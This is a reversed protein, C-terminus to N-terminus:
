HIDNLNNLIYNSQNPFISFFSGGKFLFKKNNNIINSHSSPNVGLICIQKHEIHNLSSSSIIKISDFPSYKNIKNPNDDIICKVYSQIKLIYIFAFTTHGAGYFIIKKNYKTLFNRFLKQQDFLNKQFTVLLTNKFLVPKVDSDDNTIKLLVALSDEMPYKYRVFKIIEFGQSQLFFRLSSETFYFNHEEWLVTIDGCNFQKECDPVELLLLGDKRIMKKLSSLFVKINTSHELVHRVILLDCMKYKNRIFSINNIFYKDFSEFSALKNIKNFDKNPNLTYINKTINKFFNILPKDKISFSGIISKSNFKKFKKITLSLNKLHDEPEFITLWNHKPILQNLPFPKDLCILSNKIKLTFNYKPSSRNKYKYFRNLVPFLGLNIKDKSKM